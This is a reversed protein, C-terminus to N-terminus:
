SIIFNKYTGEEEKGGEKGLDIFIGKELKNKLFEITNELKEIIIKIEEVRIPSQSWDEEPGRTEWYVIEDNLKVRIDWIADKINM